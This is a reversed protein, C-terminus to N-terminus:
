GAALCAAVTVTRVTGEAVLHIADGRAIAHEVRLPAGAEDTPIFSEVRRSKGDQLLQALVLEQRNDYGLFFLVYPYDAAFCSSGEVVPEWSRVEGAHIRVVPFDTYYCCWTSGSSDINLAYCDAMFDLGDPPTFEYLRKGEASWQVLGSEGLPTDWGYNGFIGEDFYSVWITQDDAVLVHQIGDGLVFSRKLRGDRTYVRANEDIDSDSRRQCRACVLLFDPGLPQVHTINYPEKPIVTETPVRQGLWSLIRYSQPTSPRPKFFSAGSSQVIRTDLEDLAVVTHFSGDSSVGLAVEKGDSQRRLDLCAPLALLKV